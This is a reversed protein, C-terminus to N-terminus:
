SSQCEYLGRGCLVYPGRGYKGRSYFLVSHFLISYFLISCFLVSCFLISYFLISYFLISYYLISYFLITLISYFLISYNSYFLISYFLIDICYLARIQLGKLVGLISEWGPPNSEKNLIGPGRLRKCIRVWSTLLYLPVSLSPPLYLYLKLVHLVICAMFGGFLKERVIPFSISFSFLLASQIRRINSVFEDWHKWVPL